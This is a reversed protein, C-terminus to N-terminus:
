TSVEALDVADQMAFEEVVDDTNVPDKLATPVVDQMAVEEVVGDTCAPEQLAIPVGHQMAVEEVAGDPEEVAAPVPTSALAANAAERIIQMELNPDTIHGKNRAYRVSLFHFTKTYVEYQPIEKYKYSKKSGSRAYFKVTHSEPLPPHQPDTWNCLWKPFDINPSYMANWITPPHISLPNLAIKGSREHYLQAYLEAFNFYASRNNCCTNDRTFVVAPEAPPPVDSM